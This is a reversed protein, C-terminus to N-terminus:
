PKAVKMFRRSSFIGEQVKESIGSLKGVVGSERSPRSFIYCVRELVAREAGVGTPLFEVGFVAVLEVHRQLFAVRRGVPMYEYAECGPGVVYSSFGVANNGRGERRHTGEALGGASVRGDERVGLGLGVQTRQVLLLARPAFSGLAVRDGYPHERSEALAHMSVLDDEERGHHYAEVAEKSCRLDNGFVAFLRLEQALM